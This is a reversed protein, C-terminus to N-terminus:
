TGRGTEVDGEKQDLWCFWYCFNLHREFSRGRQTTRDISDVEKKSIINRCTWCLWDSDLTSWWWRIWENMMSVSVCCRNTPLWRGCRHSRREPRRNGISPFFSDLRIMSKTPPRRRRRASQRWGDGVGNFHVMMWVFIEKRNNNFFLQQSLIWFQSSSSFHVLFFLFICLM